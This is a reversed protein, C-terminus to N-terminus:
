FGPVNATYTGMPIFSGNVGDMSVLQNGLSKPFMSSANIGAASLANSTRAACNDIKGVDDKQGKLYDLAAKDQEPTTRIRFVFNDRVAIQKHLYDNVSSGLPTGNGFSYVGAGSIAIAVHGFQNYSDTRRDGLIVLLDLGTPDISSLPNNAVYAYTNIGGELGIPDSQIYRGISADYYRHWNYWLGTEVDYYQGPFGINFGSFGDYRVVRDFATNTARWKVNRSSDLVVEPRGLHDNLVAFLAYSQVVGVVENDLYIYIKTFSNGQAEAILRGEPDYM